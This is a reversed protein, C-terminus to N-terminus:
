GLVLQYDRCFWWSSFALTLPLPLFFWPRHCEQVDSCNEAAAHSSQVSCQSLGHCLARRATRQPWFVAEPLLPVHKISRPSHSLFCSIRMRMWFVAHSVSDWVHTPHGYVVGRGIYAFLGSFMLASDAVGYRGESFRWRSRERPQANGAVRKQKM